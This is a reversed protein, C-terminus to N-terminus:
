REPGEEPPCSERHAIALNGGRVWRAVNGEFDGTEIAIVSELPITEALEPKDPNTDENYVLLCPKMVVYKGGHIVREELVHGGDTYYITADASENVDRVFQPVDVVPFLPVLNMEAM